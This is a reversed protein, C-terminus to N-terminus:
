GIRYKELRARDLEVGLGPGRPPLLHGDAIVLGHDVVDDLHYAFGNVDSAFGLNGMAFALHAQAATGIGLEPMSGVICPLRATEALTFIRAAPLLGGAEAVYVNFVDVAGTRVCALADAPTWVSEDAMIPVGVQQRVFALGELDAAALPQEVLELGFVELERIRRVAEKPSSWGMNADVRLALHPFEARLAELHARDAAPDRGVKLKLTRYGEAAFRRAQALVEEATGMSLSHSLLVRDRVRGGLLDHVPAGYAKGVIDLLAMEVGAKAPWARHLRQNMLVALENVRLPDRGLLLEALAGDIDDAAGRGGRDWITAAEGLGSLGADTDIEVVANESAQQVGLSSTFTALRPVSVPTARVATIKM